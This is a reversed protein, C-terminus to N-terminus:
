SNYFNLDEIEDYIKIEKSKQVESLLGKSIYLTELELTNKIKAIKISDKNKNTCMIAAKVAREEDELVMPIKAYKLMRSTLCNIYTDKFKINNFCEVTIFDALGIGTANGHSEETLSCVIIYKINIYKNLEGIINTDMGSGSINKGIEDIILIDLEYFPLLPLINKQKILMRKDLDIIEEPKALKIECLEELANELLGVGLLVPTKEIILQAAESLIKPFKAINFSHITSAGKHKGLGIVMMKSMGSEIEGSFDTHVKVRNVIILGDAQLAIKSINVPIDSKTKGIYETEMSAVIPVELSEESINYSALVEKQGSATAAGHSGMAPIIFPAADIKKLYDVISKIVQYLRDIGRSGVAIGIRDGPQIQNELNEKTLLKTINEPVNNIFDSYLDQQIKYMLPLEIHDLNQINVDNKDM